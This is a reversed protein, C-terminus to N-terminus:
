VSKGSANAAPGTSIIVYDTGTGVGESMGAVIVNGSPDLAIGHGADLGAAPGDYRKVWRLRGDADCSLTVMDNTLAANYLVGVVYVNSAADVVMGRPRGGEFGAPTDYSCEWLLTGSPSYKVISIEQTGSSEQWASAAVYANGERDVVVAEGESGGGHSPRYRRAWLQEGDSSYKLTLCNKGRGRYRLDTGGSESSHGVFLM